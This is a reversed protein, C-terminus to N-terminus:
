GQPTQIGVPQPPPSPPLGVVFSSPGILFGNMYLIGTSNFVTLKIKADFYALMPHSEFLTSNIWPYWVTVLYSKNVAGQYYVRMTCGTPSAAAARCAFEVANPRTGFCISVGSGNENELAPTYCGPGAALYSFDSLTTISIATTTEVVTTSATVPNRMGSQVGLSYSGLSAAVIVVVAVFTAIWKGGEFTQNM